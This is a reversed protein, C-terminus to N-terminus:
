RGTYLPHIIDRELQLQNRAITKSAKENLIRQLKEKLSKRTKTRDSDKWAAADKLKTQLGEVTLNSPYVVFEGTLDDCVITSTSRQTLRSAM